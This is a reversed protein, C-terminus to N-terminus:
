EDPEDITLSVAGWAHTPRAPDFEPKLLRRIAGGRMWDLALLVAMVLAVRMWWRM